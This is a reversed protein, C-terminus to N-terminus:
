EAITQAITLSSSEPSTTHLRNRSKKYDFHGLTVKVCKSLEIL